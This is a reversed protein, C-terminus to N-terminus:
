DDISGGIVVVTLFVGCVTGLIFCGLNVLM